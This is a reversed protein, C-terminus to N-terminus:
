EAGTSPGFEIIEQTVNEMKKKVVTKKRMNNESTIAGTETFCPWFGSTIPVAIEEGGKAKNIVKLVGM